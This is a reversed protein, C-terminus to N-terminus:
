GDEASMEEATVLTVMRALRTVISLLFNRKFLCPCKMARSSGYILCLAKTRTLFILM